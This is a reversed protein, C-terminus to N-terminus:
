NKYVVFSFISDVLTAGSTWIRVVLKGGSNGTSVIRPNSSIATVTTTYAANTYTEGTITIDYQGPSTPTVSTINGSSSLITGNVDITGYCVPVMNAAGTSVRNVEGTININGSAKINGVVDLKEAPTVIGIGVQGNNDITMRDTNGNTRFRLDYTNLGVNYIIGGHASHIENGFGIGSSKNGDTLINIFAADNDKEAVIVADPMPTIGTSTATGLVQLARQPNSMNIGTNGNKLVTMANSRANDATGKGIIFVPDTVIWSDQDSAIISDNYQGITLSAFARSTTYNGMATSLDGSTKTFHGTAFSAFGSSEGGRGIATSESGSAMTLYGTAMSRFGSATSGYGMATSSEGSAITGTGISVSSTGSSISNNGIATSYDGSATTFTGMATSQTGSATAGGGMATSSFGSAITQTGTATAQNGPASAFVGLAFAYTGKAKADYGMAISGFGISDKDWHSGSVTGVRFAVKDAYWMMRSGAGSVPTNAPTGFSTPGTFVVSGDNVHLLALPTPTNIGTKGNKLITMANNRNNNDLGNGIIFVPDSLTWVSISASSTDNFQGFVFSTYSRAITNFGAAISHRGHTRTESGMTTSYTGHAFTTHGMAISTHGTAITAAGLATSQMGIASTEAGFATSFFGKAKTNFGMAISAIGISDRDWYTEGVGNLDGARFAARRSFWMMRGGGGSIPPMTLDGVTASPSNFLVSSDKVHLM